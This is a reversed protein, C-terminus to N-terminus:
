RLAPRCRRAPDDARRSSARGAGSASVAGPQRRPWGTGFSAGIVSRCAATLSTSAASSRVPVWQWSGRDLVWTDGTCEDLRFVDPWDITRAHDHLSRRVAHLSLERTPAGQTSVTNGSGAFWGAALLVTAVVLFVVYERQRM